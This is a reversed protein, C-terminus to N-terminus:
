QVLERTGEKRSQLDYNIPASAMRGLEKFDLDPSIGRLTSEIIALSMLPFAFDSEAYLGYERQLDFLSNGFNMMAFPEAEPDTHQKVLASVAATFSELKTGPRIRVASEIIIEACRRGNGRALEMFFEAILQRVRDPLQVSFGADLVVVEGGRTVYLNGPHLDCHVFGEMFIMKRVAHLATIALEQRSEPTHADVNRADLGPIFEMVLCGPVSAETVVAPIVLHPITFLGRRIRALNAAERVFDLQGLIARSVFAMLDGLPMGKCKPLREALRVIGELLSLDATMLRRIGPRQLKLALGGGGRWPAYFVSAISGSAILTLEGPHFMADKGAGFASTLAHITQKKTMPTVADHLVSLEDCLGSPLADRRSSMIQGFKVFTPGLRQLLGALSRYLRRSAADRGKVLLVALAVAASPVSYAVLTTGIVLCRWSLWLKGPRAAAQAQIACDLDPVVNSM